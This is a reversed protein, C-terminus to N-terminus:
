LRQPLCAFLALWTANTARYHRGELNHPLSKFMIGPMMRCHTGFDHVHAHRLQLFSEAVRNVAGSLWIV